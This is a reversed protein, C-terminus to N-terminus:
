KLPLEWIGRGHTAAYLVGTNPLIKLDYVMVEPIGYAAPKWTNTGSALELVGFDTAAFLDGTLNNYALSNVPQDGLDNSLDNWAATNTAPDYVVSYIHGPSSPTYAGYGSFAVFAHNPNAPDVTINDIFRNPTSANDIRNYTVSGANAADANKSIFLRGTSTGAWMTGNDSSARAIDSVIQVARLGPATNRKDNGYLSSMLDGSTGKGAAGGLPVWDGCTVANDGSIENCHQDFQAATMTGQGATQTRWVHNLGAFMTKSVTPDTYLPIYFFSNEPANNLPDGIWEWFNPDNGHLNVDVATGAYSHVTINSNVADFGSLGGDGGVSEFWSGTGASNSWTGNDQTGGILSSTNNPDVSVTQFQLTNLGSNMSTLQGPVASLWTQCNALNTGTLGRGGSSTPAACMSSRDVFTGDSHVLGGDSGFFAIDPNNPDFAVAHQDPHMSAAPSQADATVDTWHVGGDTSRMFARANSPSNPHYGPFEGYVMNGGIYVTNPQGPPSGIPMDYWCQGGCFNNVGYGPNSPNSSSLTIWQANLTSAPADANDLRYVAGTAPGTVYGANAYIRTHNNFQTLAFGMREASFRPTKIQHFATDGDLSQSRRWLGQGVTALYVDAGNFAVQVAAVSATASPWVQTFTAGGDNSEWLGSNAVGPPSEYGGSVGSAGAISSRSTALIHNSNAPDIAVSTIAKNFFVNGTGSPTAGQAALLTWQKGGDTSKYLGTGVENDIASNGEGTGVYITDGSADHPDLAMSGIASSHIQPLRAPDVPVSKDGHKTSVQAWMPTSALANDTRWVGGGATGLYLRCYTTTCNPAVVISTVRGSIETNRTIWTSSAAASVSANTPGLIQWHSNQSAPRSANASFANFAGQIQASAINNSPYARAAYLQDAFSQMDGEGGNDQVAAAQDPEGKQMWHPGAVRAHTEGANLMQTSLVVAGLVCGVGLLKRQSRLGIRSTKSKEVYLGEGNRYNFFRKRDM